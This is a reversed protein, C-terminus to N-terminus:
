DVSEVNMPIQPNKHVNFFCFFFFFFLSKLLVFGADKGRFISLLEMSSILVVM